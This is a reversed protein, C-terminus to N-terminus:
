SETEETAARSRPPVPAFYGVAACLLGYGIFSVIGSIDTLFRRDILLLKALVVGMLVAGAGWLLRDGRRSGFIWGFIGLVSWVLTLATQVNRDDLMGPRWDVGGWHHVGRLTAFTIWVFACLAFVPVRRRPDILDLASDRRSWAWYGVLSLTALQWLELPNVITVWPLPASDGAEFLSIAWALALVCAGTALLPRRYDDFGASLPPALLSPQLRLAAVFMLVPLGGAVMHWGDGLAGDDALWLATLSLVSVWTWWWGGHALGRVVTSCTRLGMLARFGLAAYLVWVAAGWDRLPHAHAGTLVFAFPVGLALTLAAIVGYAEFAEWRRRLEAVIWGTLAVFMAVADPRHAHPVFDKIEGLGAVCWWLLAWLSLLLTPVRDHERRYLMASVFGALAILLAGMFAANAIPLHSDAFSSTSAFGSSLSGIGAMYAVAAGFQLLLGSIQPLRRSQRLGLWVLAAGEVAFVSATTRASFALPVALTAFGVAMVAYTQLLGAFRARGRLLMALVVYVMAMALASFALPLRGDGFAGGQLLAAQLSFAILPTAFVLTGDIAGHLAGRGAADGRRNAYFVPILLYILFFLILFPETSAFKEPQYDLVGWVTGIGFTFVFGLLNLLRWPRNWAIAFLGLNLVAYYSFLAIHNGGGTSLWIPALFGSVLGFLALALSEQLVALVCLGAVLVITIGFAAGVPILHYIKFAAFAVLMLVGIATGQVSLGFSRRRMRERWGFVLGGLAAFAVGALRLEIPVNILRKDSAYKLLAAVGALLVMMGIKVPVNGETFWRKVAMVVNTIPDAPPPAAAARPPPADARATTRAPASPPLPPPVRAPKPAESPAPGIDFVARGSPPEAPAASAAPEAPAAPAIDAVVPRATPAEAAAPRPPPEPPPAATSAPATAAVAVAPASAAERRELADVDQQLRTVDAELAEIRDRANAIRGLAVVLLVPIALLGLGLLILLGIVDDDGM